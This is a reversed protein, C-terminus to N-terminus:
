VSKDSLIMSIKDSIAEILKGRPSSKRFTLNLQRAAGTSHLPQIGIGPRNLWGASQALAPVLSIGQGAEVLSIITELSTVSTEALITRSKIDCLDVTQDRFCHGESLLIM